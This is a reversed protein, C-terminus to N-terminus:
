PLRPHIGHREAAKGQAEIHRSFVDDGAPYGAKPILKEPPHNSRLAELM